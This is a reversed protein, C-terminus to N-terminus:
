ALDNRAAEAQEQWFPMIMESYMTAALAFHEHARVDSGSDRRLKGLGLHCHAVLPRMSLESALGLSARYHVEASVQDRVGDHAATEGAARLAWAEYGREGRERALTVARDASARANELRGALLYAEALQAVTITHLHAMGLADYAALARELWAVGDQVRGSRAHVHGLSAMVIPSWTTIHHDHCHALARELLRSAESM